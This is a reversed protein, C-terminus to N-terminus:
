IQIAEPDKKLVPDGRDNTKWIQIVEPMRKELLISSCLTSEEQRKKGTTDPM